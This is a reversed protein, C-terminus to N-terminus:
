VKGQGTQSVLLAEQFFGWTGEKSGEDKDKTKTKNQKKNKNKNQHRLHKRRRSKCKVGGHCAFAGAGGFRNAVSFNFM